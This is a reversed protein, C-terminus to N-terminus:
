MPDRGEMLRGIMKGAQRARELYAPMVATLRRRIANEERQLWAFGETLEDERQLSQVPLM